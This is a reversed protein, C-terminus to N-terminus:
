ARQAVVRAIADGALRRQWQRTYFDTHKEHLRSLAALSGAIAQCQLRPIQREISIVGRRYRWAAIWDQLFNVVHM